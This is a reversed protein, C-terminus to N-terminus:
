EYYEDRVTEMEYYLGEESDASGKINGVAEKLFYRKRQGSQDYEVFEWKKMSTTLSSKLYPKNEDDLEYRKRVMESINSYSYRDIDFGGEAYSLDGSVEILCYTKNNKTKYLKLDSIHGNGINTWEAFLNNHEDYIFVKGIFMDAISEVNWYGGDLNKYKNEKPVTCEIKCHEVNTPFDFPQEFIVWRNNDWLSIGLGIGVTNEIDYLSVTVDKLVTSPKDCSVALVLAIFAFLKKM